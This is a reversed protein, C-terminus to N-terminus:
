SKLMAEFTEIAIIKVGLKEAKELKSPGMNEGALLYDLKGSVSSLVRGGNAIIIDKLQDREYNAFTGSIVFSKDGLLNSIKEPETQNLQMQLGAAKLRAIEKKNGVEQFFNVVSQAIKEGVEPAQTLQEYSAAALADITKFYAALKEAVTKGVFRIGIGFLVAEFPASKSAAIGDLMNQASKDKVKELKLFDSKNLDYLDAATKVLGLHFLQKITQEGLSDINLAKRQIFHEIKGTIQPPCGKENPCYHNAEGEQRV